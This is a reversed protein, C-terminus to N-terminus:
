RAEEKQLEAIVGVYPRLTEHFGHADEVGAAVRGDAFERVLFGARKLATVVVARAGSNRVTFKTLREISL